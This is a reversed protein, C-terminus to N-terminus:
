PASCLGWYGLVYAFDAGDVEGDGNIDAVLCGLTKVGVQDRVAVFDAADVDDDGDMDGPTGETIGFDAMAIRADDEDYDGDGDLDGPIPAEETLWIADYYDGKIGFSTNFMCDIIEVRLGEDRVVGLAPMKPASNGQFRCRELLLSGTGSVYLGGGQGYTQGFIGSAGAYNDVIWCNVFSTRANEIRAGGGYAYNGATERGSAIQLNEFRLNGGTINMVQRSNDGSIITVPDGASDVEGIITLEIDNDMEITDGETYTVGSLQIIDGDSSDEIAANISTYHCGSACVTRTTQASATTVPALLGSVALAVITPTRHM